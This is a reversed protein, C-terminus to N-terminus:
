AMAQLASQSLPARGLNTHIVVGTANIAPRLSPTALAWASEAARAAIEDLGPMAADEHLLSKRVADVESRAASLIVSHPLRARADAMAPHVMVRDVSPLTRLRNAGNAGNTRGSARKETNM